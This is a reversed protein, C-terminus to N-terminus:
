QSGEGAPAPMVPLIKGAPTRAAPRREVRIAGADRIMETMFKYYGSRAGIARLLTQTVETEDVVGLSPEVRLTLSSTGADDQSELLQYDAVGGGFRRPLEQELIPYLDAVAFTVGFANLKRFSRITHLRLDYGFERAPSTVDAGEFYASDGLEVNLLVKPGARVLSTFLMAEPGNNAGEGLARPLVAYSDRFVHVEDHETAGSFQAGVWGAESTGYTPCCRAGSAEIAKRREPTVPEAGLLFSVGALSRGKEAAAQSLRAAASPSTNVLPKSGRGVLGALYEMVREAAEIGALEPAAFGAVLQALRHVTRSRLRDLPARVDAMAFWKTYRYGIKTCM